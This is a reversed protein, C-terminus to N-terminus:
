VSRKEKCHKCVQYGQGAIQIFHWDSTSNWKYERWCLECKELGAEIKIFHGDDKVKYAPPSYADHDSPDEWM